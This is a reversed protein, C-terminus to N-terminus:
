SPGVVTVVGSSSRGDRDYSLLVYRYTRGKRVSHDTFSTGRGKYRTVTRRGEIRLVAVREVGAPRQWELRIFRKGATAVVGLVSPVPGRPTKVGSRSRASADAAGARLRRTSVNATSPGRPARERTVVVQPVASGGPDVTSHDHNGIVYAGSAAGAIFAAVAVVGTRRQRLERLPSPTRESAGAPDLPGAKTRSATADFLTIPPLRSRAYDALEPWVLVLEPSIPENALEAQSRAVPELSTANV